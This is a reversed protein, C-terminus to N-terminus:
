LRAFRMGFAEAFTDDIFTGHLDLSQREKGSDGTSPAWGLLYGSACALSSAAILKSGRKRTPSTHAKRSLRIYFVGSQRALRFANVRSATTRGTRLAVFLNIAAGRFCDLFCPM